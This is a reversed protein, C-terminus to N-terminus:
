LNLNVPVNNQDLVCKAQSIFEGIIFMVESWVVRASSSVTMNRANLFPIFGLDIDLGSLDPLDPLSPLNNVIDPINPINNPLSPIDVGINPIDPLNVRDTVQSSISVFLEKLMVWNFGGSQLITKLEQDVCTTNKFETINSAEAVIPAFIKFFDNSNIIQEVITQLRGVDISQVNLSGFWRIIFQEWTCSFISQQAVPIMGCLGETSTANCIDYLGAAGLDSHEAIASHLLVDGDFRWPLFKLMQGRQPIVDRWEGARYLLGGCSDDDQVQMKFTHFHVPEFPLSVDSNNEGLMVQYVVGVRGIGTFISADTGGFKDFGKFAVGNLGWLKDQSTTNSGDDIRSIFWQTVNTINGDTDNMVLYFAELSRLDSLYPPLVAQSTPLAVSSSDSSNTDRASVKIKFINSQTWLNGSFCGDVEGDVADVANVGFEGESSCMVAVDARGGQPLVLYPNMLYPTWQFVGDRAVHTVNCDGFDLVLATDAAAHVIRLLMAEDKWMSVVPEFQGNVVYNNFEKANKSSVLPLGFADLMEPLSKFKFDESSDDQLSSNTSNGPPKTNNVPPKTNNGSGEGSEKDGELNIRNLVLLASNKSDERYFLDLDDPLAYGESPEVIAAGSLGSLLHLASSGHNHPGYWLTGMLHELPLDYDFTMNDGPGVSKSVDDQFPSVFLGYVHLNTFAACHFTNSFECSSENSSGTLSNMLIISCSHGARMRITPGPFYATDNMHFVAPASWTWNGFSINAPKVELTINGDQCWVSPLEKLDAAAIFGPLVAILAIVASAFRGSRAM